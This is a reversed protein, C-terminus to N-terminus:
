HATKSDPKEIVPTDTESKHASTQRSKSRSPKQRGAQPAQGSSQSSVSGAIVSGIPGSTQLLPFSSSQSPKISQSSSSQIPSGAQAVQGGGGGVATQPLPSTSGPSVQSSPGPEVLGQGVEHLSPLGQVVSVNNPLASSQVARQTWLSIVSQLRRILSPQQGGPQVAKVSILQEGKQPFLIISGPSVQSSPGPEGLGQGVEHLSPLGQVSFILVPLAASQLMWHLKGVM